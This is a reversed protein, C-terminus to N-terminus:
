EGGLLNHVWYPMIKGGNQHKWKRANAAFTARKRIAPNSSRKGKAICESTVKGGCWSTFKGRNKKKIHIGSKASLIGGEKRINFPAPKGFLRDEIQRLKNYYKDPNYDPYPVEWPDITGNRAGERWAKAANRNEIWTPFEAQISQLQDLQIQAYQKSRPTTAMKVKKKAAKIATDLLKPGHKFINEKHGEPMSLGYWQPFFRKKPTFKGYAVKTLATGTLKPSGSLLEIPGLGTLPKNHGYKEQYAEDSLTQDGNIWHHFKRIGTIIPSEYMERVTGYGDTYTQPGDATISQYITRKTDPM